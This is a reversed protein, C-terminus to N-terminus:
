WHVSPRRPADLRYNNRWRGGVWSTWFPSPQVREPRYRRPDPLHPAVDAGTYSIEKGLRRLADIGHLTAGGVLLVPLEPSGLDHWEARWARIRRHAETTLPARDVSVVYGIERLPHSDSGARLVPGALPTRLVNPDGIDNGERWYLDFLLRRVEPDVPSGYIAAYASIAAETKPTIPPMDWPLSEGPLLLRELQGFRATLADQDAASLRRGRVPLEPRHEVVRFDVPIGPSGAGVAALIDARRAALYSDLTSFDAYLTLSM